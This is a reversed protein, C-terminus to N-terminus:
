LYNPAATRDSLEYIDKKTEISTFPKNGNMLKSLQALLNEKTGQQSLMQKRNEYVNIVSIISENETNFFTEFHINKGKADRAVLLLSQHIASLEVGLKSPQYKELEGAITYFYMIMTGLDIATFSQHKEELEKIFDTTVNEIRFLATKSANHITNPKIKYILGTKFEPKSYIHEIPINPISPIQYLPM